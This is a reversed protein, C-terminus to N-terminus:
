TRQEEPAAPAGRAPRSGGLRRRARFPAIIAGLLVTDEPQAILYTILDAVREPPLANDPRPVPGNQEWIRTDV